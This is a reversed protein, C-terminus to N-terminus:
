EGLTFGLWETRAHNRNRISSIEKYFRGRPRSGGEIRIVAAPEGFRQTEVCESRFPIGSAPCALIRSIQTM